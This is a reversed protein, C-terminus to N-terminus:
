RSESSAFRMTIREGELANLSYMEVTSGSSPSSFVREAVSLSTNLPM